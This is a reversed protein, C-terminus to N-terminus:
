RLLYGGDIVLTHGCIYTTDDSALFMTTHAIEAPEGFRRMPITSLVAKEAAENQRAWDIGRTAIFGPAIANVRVGFKAWKDALSKTFGILAHKSSSYAPFDRMGIFGGISAINIIAGKGKALRDRFRYALDAAAVLNVDLVDRVVDSKFENPGPAGANNILIDLDSISKDLATHDDDNGMRCQHYTFNSLDESYNSAATRTGTIHVDAGAELFAKAIGLGIGRSAGTVLVTKGLFNFKISM